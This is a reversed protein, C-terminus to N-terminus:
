WVKARSIRAAHNLILAPRYPDTVAVGLEGSGEVGHEGGLPDVHEPGWRPSGPRVAVRFPEDAALASHV